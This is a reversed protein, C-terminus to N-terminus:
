KAIVHLVHCPFVLTIEPVPDAKLSIAIGPIIETSAKNAEQQFVIGKIAEDKIANLFDFVAKITKRM